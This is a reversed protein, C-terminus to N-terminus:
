APAGQAIAEQLLADRSTFRARLARHVLAPVDRTNCGHLDKTLTPVLRRLDVLVGAAPTSLERLFLDVVGEREVRLLWLKSGDAFEVEQRRPVGTAISGAQVMFPWAQVLRHTLIPADAGRAATHGM